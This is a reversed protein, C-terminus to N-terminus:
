CDMRTLFSNCEAEWLSREAFGSPPPSICHNLSKKLRLSKLIIAVQRRSEFESFMQGSADSEALSPVNGTKIFLGWSEKSVDAKTALRDSITDKITDKERVAVLLNKHVFTLWNPTSMYKSLERQQEFPEYCDLGPFQKIWPYLKIAAELEWAFLGPRLPLQVGWGVTGHLPMLLNGTARMFREILLLKERSIGVAWPLHIRVFGGLSSGKEPLNAYFLLPLATRWADELSDGSGMAIDVAEVPLPPCASPFAHDFFLKTGNQLDDETDQSLNKDNGDLYTATSRRADGVSSSSWWFLHQGLQNVFNKALQWLAPWAEDRATPRLWLTAQLGIRGVEYNEFTIPRPELM